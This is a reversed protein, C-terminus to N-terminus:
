HWTVDDYMLHVFKPFPPLTGPVPDGAPHSVIHVQVAHKNSISGGYEKAMMPGKYDVKGTKSDRVQETFMLHTPGTWALKGNLFAQGPGWTALYTWVQPLVPPSMAPDIDGGTAGHLNVDTRIMQFKNVVIKWEGDSGSFTATIQGSNTEPDVNIDIDGSGRIVCSGDYCFRDKSDHKGIQTATTASIKMESAFASGYGAIVLLGAVLGLVIKKIAHNM